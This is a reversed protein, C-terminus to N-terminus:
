QAQNAGQYTLRKGEIAKVALKAREGDSIKRHNYRFDFEAVYRALHQQSVHHYVGTLGRKLISFYNEITNTYIDGRVYEGASHIVTEHAAFDGMVKRNYVTADDTIVRSKKCVQSHLIAGVNQATVEPVHFSRVRGKREVLSVVAEKGSGGSIGKRKNAHRNADKGGVYTEDIEIVKGSGGMPGTEGPDDPMAARIRHAMFWATRYSGFGLMRYLQHASMGKKSACMLHTALLWKHLPIHSREYLTGVTATFPKRCERCKWLGPRTTKGKMETAKDVSGCFPCVPGEPWRIAEFHKRAADENTFIPNTLDTKMANGRQQYPFVVLDGITHLTCLQGLESISM